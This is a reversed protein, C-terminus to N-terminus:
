RLVSLAILLGRPKLGRKILFGLLIRMIRLADVIPRFHSPRQVFGQYRAKIPVRFFDFGAEAARLIVATEFVFHSREAEPVGTRRWLAAPYLRMGCQGDRFRRETAWSIFFDGVRISFARNRPMAGRNVSRDGIILRGPASQAAAIFAPIDKPDHQGDADLTLVAEAGRSIAHDLGEALRQGKGLNQEHDIIEVSLGELAAVTGDTSGDSVVLVHDVHTLAEEVIARITKEENLAPILVTCESDRREGSNM